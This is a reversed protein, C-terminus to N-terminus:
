EFLERLIRENVMIDEIIRVKRERRGRMVAAGERM